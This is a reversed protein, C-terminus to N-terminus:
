ILVFEVEWRCLIQYLKPPALLESSPAQHHNRKNRKATKTRVVETFTNVVNVLHIAQLQDHLPHHMELSEDEYCVFNLFMFSLRM